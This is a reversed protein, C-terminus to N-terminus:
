SKNDTNKNDTNNNEANNNDTSILKMILRLIIMIRMIKM